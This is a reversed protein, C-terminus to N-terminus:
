GGLGAHVVSAKIVLEGTILRAGKLPQCEMINLLNSTSYWQIQLRILNTMAIINSCSLLM